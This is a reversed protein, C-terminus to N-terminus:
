RVELTFERLNLETMVGVLRFSKGFVESALWGGKPRVAVFKKAGHRYITFDIEKGLPNVLWYERVGARHYLDLLLVTDKKVSTPSVVELVMDPSGLLELSDEGQRLQVRQRQLTEQSAFLADPEASLGAEPHVLRMKDGYLRGRREGGQNLSFLAATIATKIQNHVDREMAPDVWITGNLFAIEGEEPFEESLTWRRFAALDQVWSPVHIGGGVLIEAM